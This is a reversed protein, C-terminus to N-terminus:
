TISQLTSGALLLYHTPMEHYLGLLDDGETFWVLEREHRGRGGHSDFYGTRAYYPRTRDHTPGFLVILRGSLAEKDILRAHTRIVAPAALPVSLRLM